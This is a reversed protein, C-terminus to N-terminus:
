TQAEGRGRAGWEGWRGALSHRRQTPPCNMARHTAVLPTIYCLGARRRPSAVETTDCSVFSSFYHIRVRAVDASRRCSRTEVGRRGLPRSRSRAAGTAAHPSNYADIRDWSHLGPLLSACGAGAADLPPACSRPCCTRAPSGDERLRGFRRARAARTM